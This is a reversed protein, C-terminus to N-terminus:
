SKDVANFYDRPQRRCLSRLRVGHWAAEFDSGQRIATERDKRWGGAVHGLDLPERTRWLSRPAPNM